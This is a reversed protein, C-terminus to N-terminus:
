SFRAERASIDWASFRLRSHSQSPCLRLFPARFL